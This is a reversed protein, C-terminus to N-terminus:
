AISVQCVYLSFLAANLDGTRGNADKDCLSIAASLVEDEVKAADVRLSFRM